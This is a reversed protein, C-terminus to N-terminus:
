HVGENLAMKIAIIDYCYKLGFAVVFATKCYNSANLIFLFKYYTFFNVININWIIKFKEINFKTFNHLPRSQLITFLGNKRLFFIVKM